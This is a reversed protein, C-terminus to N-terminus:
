SAAGTPTSTVPAPQDEQGAYVHGLRTIAPGRLRVAAAAAIAAAV